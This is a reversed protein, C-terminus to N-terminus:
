WCGVEDDDTKWIVKRDTIEKSTPALDDIPKGDCTYVPPPVMYCTPCCLSIMFVTKFLYTGQEVTVDM